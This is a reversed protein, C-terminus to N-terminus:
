EEEKKEFFNNLSEVIYKSTDKEFQTSKSVDKPVEVRVDIHNDKEEKVKIKITIM